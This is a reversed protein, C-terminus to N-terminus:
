KEPSAVLLRSIAQQVLRILENESRCFESVANVAKANQTDFLNLSISYTDGIKGVSGSILKSVDMQGLATLCKTDTCGLQMREATWGALTRVHDQSYVEYKGLKSIESVLISTLEQAYTTKVERAWLDWVAIKPLEKGGLSPSGASSISGKEERLLSSHVWGVPKGERSVQVWGSPLSGTVHVLEAQPFSLVERSDADPKVRVVAQSSVVRSYRDERKLETGIKTLFRQEEKEGQAYANLAKPLRAVLEVLNAQIAKRPNHIGWGMVGEESSMRGQGQLTEDFVIKGDAATLRYRMTVQYTDNVAFKGMEFIELVEANLVMGPGSGQGFLNSRKLTERIASELDEKSLRIGELTVKLGSWGVTSHQTKDTVAVRELPIGTISAQAAPISPVGVPVMPATTACGLLLLLCGALAFTPLFRGWSYLFM